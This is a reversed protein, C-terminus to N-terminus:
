QKSFLILALSFLLDPQGPTLTQALIEEGDATAAERGHYTLDGTM